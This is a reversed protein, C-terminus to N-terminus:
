ATIIAEEKGFAKRQRRLFFEDPQDFPGDMVLDHNNREIDLEKSCLAFPIM